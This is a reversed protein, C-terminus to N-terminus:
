NGLDSRIAEYRAFGNAGAASQPSPKRQLLWLVGRCAMLNAKTRMITALNEPSERPSSVDPTADPLNTWV